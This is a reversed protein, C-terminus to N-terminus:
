LEKEKKDDLKQETEKILRKRFEDIAQQNITVSHDLKGEMEIKQKDGYGRDQAKAKLFMEVAWKEGLKAAKTFVQKEVDDKVEEKVEDIYPELDYEKIYRRLTNLACGLFKAAHAKLGNTMLLANKVEEVTFKEPQGKMRAGM